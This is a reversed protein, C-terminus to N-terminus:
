LRFEFVYMCQLLLIMSVFVNRVFLDLEVQNDISELLRFDLQRLAVYRELPSQAKARRM